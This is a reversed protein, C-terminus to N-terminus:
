LSQMTKTPTARKRSDGKSGNGDAKQTSSTAGEALRYGPFEYAKFNPPEKGSLAKANNTDCTQVFLKKLEANKYAKNLNSSLHWSSENEREMIAFAIHVVKKNGDQEAALLLMGLYKGYLFTGDIRPMPTILTRCINGFWLQVRISTDHKKVTSNFLVRVRDIIASVRIEHTETVNPVICSATFSSDMKPNDQTLTLTVCTHPGVYRTTEWYYDRARARMWKCPNKYWKCHYDVFTAKSKFVMYNRHQRISYMKVAQRLVDKSDFMVRVFLPNDMSPPVDKPFEPGIDDNYGDGDGDGSEDDEGNDIGDDDSGDDIGDDDSPEGGSAEPDDESSTDSIDFPFFDPNRREEEDEHLIADLPVLVAVSM